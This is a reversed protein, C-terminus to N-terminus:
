SRPAESGEATVSALKRAYPSHLNFYVGCLPREEGSQSLIITVHRDLAIGHRMEPARNVYASIAKQMLSRLSRECDETAKELCVVHRDYYELASKLEPEYSDVLLDVPGLNHNPTATYLSPRVPQRWIHLTKEDSTDM